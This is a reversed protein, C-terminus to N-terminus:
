PLKSTLKASPPAEISRSGDSPETQIAPLLLIDCQERVPAFRAVYVPTEPSWFHSAPTGHFFAPWGDDIIMIIETNQRHRILNRILLFQLQSM